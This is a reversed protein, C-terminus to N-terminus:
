WGWVVGELLDEIGEYRGSNTTEFYPANKSYRSLLNQAAMSGEKSIMFDAIQAANRELRKSITITQNPLSKTKAVVKLKVKEAHPLQEYNDNRLIAARCLGNNFANYVEAMGGRVEEIVPQLVPNEFLQYVLSTGLNPSLMGCIKKGNLDKAGKIEDDSAKTVLVFDLAGPLVAVPIHQLHKVRWAAFHPGDFVIDYRGDRMKQTYDFWSNPQQYVVKDGLLQSLQNALPEYTEKGTESNERPPATLIIDGLAVNTVFLMNLFVCIVYACTRLNKTPEVCNFLVNSYAEKIFM